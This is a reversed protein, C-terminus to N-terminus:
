CLHAPFYKLENSLLCFCEHIIYTANCLALSFRASKVAAFRFIRNLFHQIVLHSIPGRVLGLRCIQGAVCRLEWDFERLNDFIFSEFIRTDQVPAAAIDQIALDVKDGGKAEELKVASASTRLDPNKPWSEKRKLSEQKPEETPVAQYESKPM